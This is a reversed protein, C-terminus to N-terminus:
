AYSRLEFLNGHLHREFEAIWTAREYLHYTHVRGTRKARIQLQYLYSNSLSKEVQFDFDNMSLDNHLLMLHCSHRDAQPIEPMTQDHM